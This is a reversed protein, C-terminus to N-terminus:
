AQRTGSVIWPVSLVTGAILAIETTPSWAAVPPANESPRSVIVYACTWFVFWLLTL